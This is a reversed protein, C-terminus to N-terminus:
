VLFAKFFEPISKPSINPVFIFFAFVTNYVVQIDRNEKLLLLCKDVLKRNDERVALPLRHQRVSISIKLCSGHVFVDNLGRLGGTNFTTM